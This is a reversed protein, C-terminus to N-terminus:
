EGERDEGDSSTETRECPCGICIFAWQRGSHKHGCQVCDFGDDKMEDGADPKDTLEDREQQGWQRAEDQRINIDRESM